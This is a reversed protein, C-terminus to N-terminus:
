GAHRGGRTNFVDVSLPAFGCDDTTRLHAIPISEAAGLSRDREDGSHTPECGRGLGTRLGVHSREKASFGSVGRKNLEIFSNLVEGSPDVGVAVAGLGRNRKRLRLCEIQQM